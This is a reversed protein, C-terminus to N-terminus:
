EITIEIAHIKTKIDEKLTQMILKHADIKPLTNLYNSKIIIHLHFKGPIFFKHKTHKHSNDIIEIKDLKISDNLKKKIEEFYNKM